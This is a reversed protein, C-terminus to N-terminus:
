QMLEADKFKSLCFHVAEKAMCTRGSGTVRLRAANQRKEIGEEKAIRWLNTKRLALKLHGVFTERTREAKSALVKKGSKAAAWALFDDGGASEAWAEWL